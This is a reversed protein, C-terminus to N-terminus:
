NSATKLNDKWIDHHQLTELERNLEQPIASIIKICAKRVPESRGFHHAVFQIWHYETSDANKALIISLNQRHTIELAKFFKRKNLGKPYIVVQDTYKAIMEAQAPRYAPLYIANKKGQEVLRNRDKKNFCLRALEAKRIHRKADKIGPIIENPPTYNEAPSRSEENIPIRLRDALERLAEIFDLGEMKMLFDVADGGEGCGFCHYIRKPESVSFSPTNEDHFPCLGKHSSGARKLKVYGEVISVIDDNAAQKIQEITYQPIM